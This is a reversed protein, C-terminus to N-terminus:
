TFAIRKTRDLLRQLRARQVETMKQKSLQMDLDTRAQQMRFNRQVLTAALQMERTYVKGRPEKKGHLWSGVFMNGNKWHYVGRGNAIGGSYYGAHKDGNRSAVTAEAENTDSRPIQIIRICVM